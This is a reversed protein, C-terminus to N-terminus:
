IFISFIIYLIMGIFGKLVVGGLSVQGSELLLRPFFGFLFRNFYPLCVLFSILFVLIPYKINNVIKSKINGSSLSFNLQNFLGEGVYESNKGNGYGGNTRKDNMYQSRSENGDGNGEGNYTPNVYKHPPIQSNDTAYQFAENNLNTQQESGPGDGLETLIDNVFQNDSRLIGENSNQQQMQPMSSSSLMQPTQQQSYQQESLTNPQQSQLRTMMMRQDEMTQNHNTQQSSNQPQRMFDPTGSNSGRLLNIPTSM